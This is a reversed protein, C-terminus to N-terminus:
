FLVMKKLLKIIAFQLFLFPFRLIPVSLIIWFAFFLLLAASPTIYEDLKEALSPFFYELVMFGDAGAVPLPICSFIGLFVVWPCSLNVFFNTGPVLGRPVFSAVTVIRQVYLLFLALVFYSAIGAAGIMALYKERHKENLNYSNIPTLIQWRQGTAILLFLFCITIAEAGFGAFLLLITVLFVMVTLPVDVHAAPNLTLFGYDRATNDGLLYAVLARFFGHVTFVLVFTTIYPIAALGSRAIIM